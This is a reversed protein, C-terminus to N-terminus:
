FFLLFLFAEVTVVIAFTFSALTPSEQFTLKFVKLTKKLNNMFSFNFLLVDIISKYIIYQLYFM